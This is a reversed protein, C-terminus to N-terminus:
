KNIPFLLEGTKPIEPHEKNYVIKLEWPWKEGKVWQGGVVPTEAYHKENYKIPGVMTDLKTQAIAERIKNKDLSQARKLVDVAIEIGAHKFGLPATWQKGTAQTWADCLEQATEGTISSKFPHYPSWWVETTLGMPLDGGLAAVDTPFLIARGITAMKPIFGQQHFQRWATAFDPAVMNGALIEVNEQRFKNISATFDKTNAPIKGPDVMKYGKASIKKAVSESFTKGDADNAWLGGIIKNTDGAIEDWMGVFVDAVADTTWFALYSWQYPGGTLWAEVPADLAICPVQYREAIASVPNVTAPTHMVLMLDVKDELILKTAVEAAKTPDSETDVVKIKVPLKKGLEQIYIGGDKNVEELLREEVWPSGEGFGAIPGTTPNPRGILIYDREPRASTQGSNSAGSGKNQTGCGWLLLLCSLVLGLLVVMKAKIGM